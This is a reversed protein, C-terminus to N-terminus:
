FSCSVPITFKRGRVGQFIGTHAVSKKEHLIKLEEDNEMMDDLEQNLKKVQIFLKKETEKPMLQNQLDILMEDREESTVNEESIAESFKENNELVEVLKQDENKLKSDFEEKQFQSQKKHFLNIEEKKKVAINKEKGVSLLEENKKQLQSLKLEFTTRTKVSEEKLKSLEDTMRDEPQTPDLSELEEIDLEQQHM